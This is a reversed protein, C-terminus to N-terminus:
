ELADCFVSLCVFFMVSNEDVALARGVIGVMSQMSISSTWGM